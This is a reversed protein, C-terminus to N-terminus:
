AGCLWERVGGGTPHLSFSVFLLVRPNLYLCNLLVFFSPIIIIILLLLLLLLLLIHLVFSVCYLKEWWWVVSHVAQGWASTASCASEQDGALGWIYMYLMVDITHFIDIPWSPNAAQSQERGSGTCRSTLRVHSVSFLGKNRLLLQFCCHLVLLRRM